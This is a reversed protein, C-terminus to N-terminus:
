DVALLTNTPSHIPRKISRFGPKNRDTLGACAHEIGSWRRNFNLTPYPEPNRRSQGGPTLPTQYAGNKVICPTVFYEHLHDVYEIKKSDKDGTIRRWFRAMDERVWDLDLGVLLHRLANIRASV